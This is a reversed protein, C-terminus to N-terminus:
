RLVERRLISMPISGLALARSHFEPLTMGQAVASDRLDQWLRQGLAYSPAQGPWGLYRDLEFALNKEDMAVNARLFDWAYAADWVGGDPTTKRLHVGTDLVVRAARLRQADLMGMMTGPDDHYGLEAMLQEAYLAWGEGHGSNWCAVRRWLNLNDRECTAQGCQLHHGPVAEHFVTTLEQWTHFEEQGAPVSWWMRGPRSFDDSPPTYFIGGTGAPDIKAEITRVPEPIAFHTGNLDAIVRDAQNQMWQQLADVGHITYREETDLRKMADAVSTGAGYLEAAIAEQKDVIERLREQGWLYADDLDVVDGVFLHSLRQYRERGVADEAPAKPLLETRLWQAMEGCAAQAHEVAAGSVGLQTLMSQPQTLETLQEIVCQVQRAAAVRGAAAAVQLSEKYGALARPLHTLRAAIADRQEDTDQPMLLFTDRITQVPSEINNLKALNDGAADIDLEVGLRDRLVAATVRDVSDLTDEAPIANLLKRHQDAVKEWYAPSFDQLQDDYGSIGWATADTPSIAALDYVYAECSADLVSPIRSSNMGRCDLRVAVESWPEGM